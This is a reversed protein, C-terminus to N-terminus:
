LLPSLSLSLVLSPLPKLLEAVKAEEVKARTTWARTTTADRHAVVLTTVMSRPVMIAMTKTLSPM